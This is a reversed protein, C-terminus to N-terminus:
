KKSDTSKKSQDLLEQTFALFVSWPEILYRHSLRLPNTILRYVGELGFRGTWRPPTKSVGALYDFYGGVPLVCHAHLSERNKLIWKEQTPMGMGVLLIDTNHKKIERLARDTDAPNDLYGHHSALKVDPYLAALRRESRAIAEETTGLLFIRHGYKSAQEFFSFQWDLFTLRYTRDIEHGLLKLMMVVIMGDLWAYKSEECYERFASCNRLQHLGHMNYHVFLTAPGGRKILELLLRNLEVESLALGRAEFISFRRGQM